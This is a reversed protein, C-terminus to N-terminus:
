KGETEQAVDQLRSRYLYVNSATKQGQVKRGKEFSTLNGSAGNKSMKNAM